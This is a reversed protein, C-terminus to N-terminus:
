TSKVGIKRFFTSFLISIRIIIQYFLKSVVFYELLSNPLMSSFIRFLLLVANDRQRDSTVLASNSAALSLANLFVPLFIM